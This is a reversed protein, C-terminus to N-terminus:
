NILFLYIVWQTKQWVGIVEDLFVKVGVGSAFDGGFHVFGITFKKKFRLKSTKQKKM